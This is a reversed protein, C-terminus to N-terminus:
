TSGSKDALRTRGPETTSPVPRQLYTAVGCVLHIAPGLLQLRGPLLYSTALAIFWWTGQTIRDTVLHGLGPICFSLVVVVRHPM